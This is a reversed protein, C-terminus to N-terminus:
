RVRGLEREAQSESASSMAVLREARTRAFWIVAFVLAAIVFGTGVTFALRYGSLLAPLEAHGDALLSRTRDTSLTGFLAVGIAASVQLSTNVIGSALGADAPPVKAMAISLLPMMALGAGAGVFMMAVVILPVYSTHLGVRSFVGLGIASSILGAVVVPRPGFRAVLRRTPGLSLAGMVATQALFAFGTSLVGDGRVRELYLVGIFFTSYTGAM